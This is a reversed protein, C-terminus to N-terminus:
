MEMCLDARLYQKTVPIELKKFYKVSRFIKKSNITRIARMLMNTIMIVSQLITTSVRGCMVDRIIRTENQRTRWTSKMKNM